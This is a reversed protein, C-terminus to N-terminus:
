WHLEELMDVLDNIDQIKDASPLDSFYDYGYVDELISEAISKIDEKRGQKKFVLIFKYIINHGKYKFVRALNNMLLFPILNNYLTEPSCSFPAIYYYMNRPIIKSPYYTVLQKVESILEKFEKENMGSLYPIYDEIQKESPDFEYAAM